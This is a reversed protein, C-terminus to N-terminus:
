NLCPIHLFVEDPSSLIFRPELLERHAQLLNRSPEDTPILLLLYDSFEESVDLLQELRLREDKAASRFLCALGLLDTPRRHTGLRLSVTGLTLYLRWALRCSPAGNGLLIPVVSSRIAQKTEKEVMM